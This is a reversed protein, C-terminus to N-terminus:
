KFLKSVVTFFDKFEDKKVIQIIINTIESLSLNEIDEVSIDTLKSIFKFIENQCNPINSIIVASINFITQLGIQEKTKNKIDINEFCKGLEKLGIKEIISCLPAIHVATLPKINM